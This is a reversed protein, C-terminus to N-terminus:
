DPEDGNASASLDLTAPEHGFPRNIISLVEAAAFIRNRAYGTRETVIGAAELQGVAESAQRFSVDLLEAMRRITLVPYHPLIDLARLAASGRRFRRRGTWSAGLSILADRTAMLEGASGVIADAVFQIMASWNLKQQADKLAAYYQSKNADIYPSLYLPTKGAAAMMMPLLLRGVRGNGDRFPHVAEFHAHAIAMRVVLSQNISQMGENRLYDVTQMICPRVDDPPPPNWISYAIDKGGGIWVVTSRLAGPTDRYDDDGRMIDAHLRQILDLSFVDDGLRRAHPLANELVLAYDRVQKAQAKSEDDGEEVALLEDLTSNTGEIASSSVAERRTLIRSILYPDVLHAAITDVEQIAAHAATLSSLANGIAVGDEPPPAPVAGYHSAFPPPLRKLSM